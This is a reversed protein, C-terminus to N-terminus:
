NMRPFVITGWADMIYPISAMNSNFSGMKRVGEFAGTDHTGM